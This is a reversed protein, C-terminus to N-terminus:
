DAGDLLRSGLMFMSHNFGAEAAERLLREGEKLDEPLGKGDLLRQGLEDMAPYYGAQVAKKLWKEGEAVNVPLINGDLLRGGLNTMARNHGEKAARRLWREGEEIDQELGAGDLLRIGLNCMAPKHGAMAAKRLLHEGERTNKEIGYGDLLYSSYLNEASYYGAEASLKLCKMGSPTIAGKENLSFIAIEYLTAIKNKEWLKTPLTEAIKCCKGDQGMHFDTWFFLFRAITEIPIDDYESLWEVISRLASRRDHRSYYHNRVFDAFANLRLKVRNLDLGQLQYGVHKKLKFHLEPQRLRLGFHELYVQISALDLPAVPEFISLLLLTESLVRRDEETVNTDHWKDAQWRYIDDNDINVHKSNWQKERVERAAEAVRLPWGNSAEWVRDNFQKAEENIEEVKTVLPIESRDFLPIILETVRLHDKLWAEVPTNRRVTLLVKAGVPLTKPLFSLGSGSSSIEDLADIILIVQGREAVVHDLAQYLVRNYLQMMEKTETRFVNNSRHKLGSQRRLYQKSSLPSNLGSDDQESLGELEEHSVKNIILTNAQAVISGVIEHPLNSQKGFHLLCGPLWPALRRVNRKQSGQPVMQKVLEETIKSCIASKGSGEGGSLLLYEGTTHSHFVALKELLNQILKDRAGFYELHGNRESAIQKILTVLGPDRSLDSTILGHLSKNIEDFHKYLPSVIAALIAPILERQFKTHLKSPLHTVPNRVTKAIFILQRIGDDISEYQEESLFLEKRPLLELLGIVRPLNYNKQDKWNQWSEPFTVRHIAKLWVEIKRLLDEPQVGSDM